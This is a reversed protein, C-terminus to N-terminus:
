PKGTQQQLQKQARTWKEGEHQIVKVVLSFFFFCFLIFLWEALRQFPPDTPNSMKLTKSHEM